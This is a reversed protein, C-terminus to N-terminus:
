RTEIICESYELTKGEHKMTKVNTTSQSCDYIPRIIGTFDFAMDLRNRPESGQDYAFLFDPIIMEPDRTTLDGWEGGILNKNADFELTYTYQSSRIRDKDFSLPYDFSPKAPESSWKIEATIVSLYVTGPARYRFMLDDVAAAELLPGVIFNAGYVPQNWVQGTRTRDMIFGRNQKGIYDLLVTHFSAPNTDWCGYFKVGTVKRLNTLTSNEVYEKVQEINTALYYTSNTSQEILYGVRSDEKVEVQYIRLGVQALSTVYEDLMTFTHRMGSTSIYTGTVGRGDENSPIAGEPDTINENCRRGIYNEAESPAHDDWARTLLGRIDGEGFLIEKDDIKVLVSHKPPDYTLSAPTWGACAGM